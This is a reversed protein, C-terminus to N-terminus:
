WVLQHRSSDAARVFVVLHSLHFDKGALPLADVKALYPM